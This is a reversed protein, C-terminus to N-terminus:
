QLILWGVIPLGHPANGGENVGAGGVTVLVRAGGVTVLVIVAVLVGVRVAVTVLVGVFVCIGEEGVGVRVGVAVIVGV